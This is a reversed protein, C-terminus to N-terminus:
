PTGTLLAWAERAQAEARQPLDPVAIWAMGLLLTKVVYSWALIKLTRPTM